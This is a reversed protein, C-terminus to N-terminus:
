PAGDPPVNVSISFTELGESGNEVVPSDLAPERFAPTRALLGVLKAASPSLGSMTLRGSRLSFVTLYTEDPLSKTATALTALTSANRERTKKLSATVKALRDAPYRLAVAERAPEKLSAIMVDASALAGQQYIFPIAAAIVTLMCASAALVVLSRQPRDWQVRKGAGLPISATVDSGMDVEIGSPHLGARRACDIIPDVLCRPVVALDIDMLNSSANQCRVTYNWHVEDRAFPTEHEIQFGLAEKLDHRAAIPLSLKKHLVQASQLRMLVPRPLDGRGTVLEALQRFGIDDASSQAARITMGGSRFLLSVSHHNIELIIADSHERASALAFMGALQDFWWIVFKRM